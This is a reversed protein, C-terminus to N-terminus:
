YALSRATEFFHALAEEPTGVLVGHGLNSYIGHLYTWYDESSKLEVFYVIWRYIEETLAPILSLLNSPDVNGHVRLDRVSSGLRRKGDAMDVTWDLGIVDASSSGHKWKTYFVIPTDSYRREKIWPEWMELTLKAHEEVEQRLINLSDGIFQLKELDIPHFKKLCEEPRILYQIVPGKVEENDFLFGFAPIPTLIGSFIFSMTVILDTNDRFSPHKQALKQYVATYKGAQGKATSLLLPDSSFSSCDVVFKGSWAANSFRRPHCILGRKHSQISSVRSGILLMDVVALVGM